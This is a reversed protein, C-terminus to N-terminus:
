ECNRYEAVLTAFKENLRRVHNELCNINKERISDDIERALDYIEQLGLNGSAGKISHAKEHARQINGEEIAQQLEALHPRTTEIYIEFIERFDEEDLGVNEAFEKLDM